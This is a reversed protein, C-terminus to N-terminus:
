PSSRGDKQEVLSRYPSWVHRELFRRASLEGREVAAADAAQRQVTAELARVRMQAAAGDQPHLAAFLGPSGRGQEIWTAHWEALQVQLEPLKVRVAWGDRGVQLETFTMLGGRGRARLLSDIDAFMVEIYGDDDSRATMVPLVAGNAERVSITLPGRYRRVTCGAARAPGIELASEGANRLPWRRCLYAQSVVLAVSALRVTTREVMGFVRLRRRALAEQAARDRMVACSGAMDEGATLAAAVEARCGEPVRAVVAATTQPDVESRAPERSRGGVGACGAVLLMSVAARRAPAGIRKGRPM